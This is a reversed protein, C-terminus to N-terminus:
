FANSVADQQGEAESEHVQVGASYRLFVRDADFEQSM